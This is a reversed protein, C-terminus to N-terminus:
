NASANYRKIAVNVTTTLREVAEDVSLENSIIKELNEEFADRAETFVGLVAGAENNSEQLQNIAVAFLPNAELFDIMEPLKYTETNVCFYGTAQSWILQSQPEVMFKIFEFAADAKVDSGKDMAWLSGGGISIGGKDDANVSPYYGVGLEFADGVYAIVTPLSATTGVTMAINGSAFSEIVATGDQGYNVVYGSDIMDKWTQFVVRAGDNNDFVVQTASDDRGNGQDVYDLQMKNLFQEFFWGYVQMSFGYKGDGTLLESYELIEELSTPPSEPDLGAQEFATKNYYLVPTSTNFPMSHVQGEVIYYELINEEISSFDYGDALDQLVLAYGSDIMWRTGIDYLQMIDPGSNGLASSKLKTLADDYAGQYEAKVTIEDQSNNFQEVLEDIATGATGSMSHWFVLDVATSTASATQDASSSCGTLMSLTTIGLLLLSALKKM